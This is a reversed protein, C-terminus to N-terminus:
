SQAKLHKDVKNCFELYFTHDFVPNDFASADQAIGKRTLSAITQLRERLVCMLLPDSDIDKVLARILQDNTKSRKM